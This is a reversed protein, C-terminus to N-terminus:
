RSLPYSNSYVGPIPSPCPPRAHESEHPQFSDSVVSRSFGVAHPDKTGGFHISGVDGANFPVIKAVSSGSFDRRERRIQSKHAKYYYHIFSCDRIQSLRPGPCLIHRQTEHTPNKWTKKGGQRKSSWSIKRGQLLPLSTNEIRKEFIWHINVMPRLIVSNVERGQNLAKTRYSLHPSLYPHSKM